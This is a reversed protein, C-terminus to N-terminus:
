FKITISIGLIKNIRVYSMDLISLFHVQIELHILIAKFYKIGVIIHCNELSDLQYLHNM